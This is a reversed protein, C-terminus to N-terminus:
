SANDIDDWSQDNSGTQAASFAEDLKMRDWLRINEVRKPPPLFGGKVLSDFKTVSVGVYEAAAARRLGRPAINPHLHANLKRM